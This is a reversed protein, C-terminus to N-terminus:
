TACPPGVVEAIIGAVLCAYVQPDIYGIRQPRICRAEVPRGERAARLIGERMGRSIGLDCYAVTAEAAPGWALGAAIGLAREHPNDDDLVQPYLLHSALPAEGRALSDLLCQRAYHRNRRIDGAFPSELIVRRPRDTDTDATM